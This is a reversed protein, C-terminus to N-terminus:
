RLKVRALRRANATAARHVPAMGKGLVGLAANHLQTAAHGAPNRWAAPSWFATLMSMAMEQNARMAQLAMANWSAAFAATKEAGMLQFEKRDRESLVPGSMAMRAMRHAVVQPAAIALETTRAALSLAQRNRRAPM